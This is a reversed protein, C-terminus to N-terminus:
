GFLAEAKGLPCLSLEPSSQGRLSTPDTGGQGQHGVETRNDQLIKGVTSVVVQCLHCPIGKQQPLPCTLISGHCGSGRCGGWM